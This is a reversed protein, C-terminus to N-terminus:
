DSGSGKEKDILNRVFRAPNGAVIVHPKISTTVVAGAGVMVGESVDAAVIAGEGIWVNNELTVRSLRDSSYPTWM